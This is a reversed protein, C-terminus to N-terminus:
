SVREAKNLGELSSEFKGHAWYDDFGCDKCKTEVEYILGDDIIAKLLENKGGCKNCSKKNQYGSQNDMVIVGCM